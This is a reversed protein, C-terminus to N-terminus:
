PVKNLYTFVGADCIRYCTHVKLLLARTFPKCLILRLTRGNWSASRHITANRGRDIPEVDDQPLSPSVREHAKAQLLFAFFVDGTM